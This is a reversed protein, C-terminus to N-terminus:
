PPIPLAAIEAEEGPAIRAALPASAPEGAGLHPEPPTQPPM